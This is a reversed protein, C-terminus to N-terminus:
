NILVVQPSFCPLYGLPMLVTLPPQISRQDLVHNQQGVRIEM